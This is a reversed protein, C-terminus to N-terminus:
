LPVLKIDGWAGMAENLIVVVGLVGDIAKGFEIASSIDKETTIKNGMATAVADALAGSPSIVCVADAKGFSLSHGITGSSTCVCIPFPKPSLAIGFQLSLPSRGAFISVTLPCPTKIFIDGGNEVVVRESYEALAMGVYAAMVGAVSAMPGVMAKKAGEIMEKVIYPAFPDDSVPVLSTLFDPYQHIYSKIANRHTLIADRALVSLDKDAHILLDTEEVMVEFTHSAASKQPFNRYIRRECCKLDKIKEM